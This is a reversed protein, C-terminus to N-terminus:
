APLRASMTGSLTGLPRETGASSSSGHIRAGTDHRARIKRAHLRNCDPAMATKSRMAVTQSCVGEEGRARSPIRRLARSM